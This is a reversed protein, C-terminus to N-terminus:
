AIDRGMHVVRALGLTARRRYQCLTTWEDSGWMFTGQSGAPQNVAQDNLATWYGDSPFQVLAKKVFEQLVDLLM